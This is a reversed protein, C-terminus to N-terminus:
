EIGRLVSIETGFQNNKKKLQGWVCGKLRQTFNSVDKTLRGALVTTPQNNQGEPTNAEVRVGESSKFVPIM